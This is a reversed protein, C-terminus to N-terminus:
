DRNWGTARRAQPRHVRRFLTQVRGRRGRLRPLHMGENGPERPLDDGREIVVACALRRRRNPELSVCGRYDPRKSDHTVM